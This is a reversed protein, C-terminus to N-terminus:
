AVEKRRWECLAGAAAGCLVAAILGLNHPLPRALLAVLGAVSAATWLRWGVLATALMAIFVATMPFDLLGTLSTGPAASGLAMGLLTSGTWNAYMAASCGLFFWSRARPDGLGARYREMAAFFVADVLGFALLARWRRPLSGLHPRLLTAYILMRLSLVTVTLLVVPWGVGARLLQIAALMATGSNVAMAMGLTGLAGLGAALGAAGAILGMPFASLMFPVMARCGDRFESAPSGPPGPAAPAAHSVPPPLSAGGGTPEDPM